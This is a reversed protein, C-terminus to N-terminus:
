LRANGELGADILERQCKIIRTRLPEKSNGACYKKLIYTMDEKEKNINNVYINNYKLVSLVPVTPTFEFCFMKKVIDPKGDFSTLQNKHCYFDDCEIPGGILDKLNNQYCNFIKLVKRPSGVLTTLTNETCYFIGTVIGFTFPLKTIKWKLIVGGDVVDDVIEIKAKDSIEFIKRVDQETVTM